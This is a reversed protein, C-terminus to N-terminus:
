SFSSRPPTSGNIKTLNAWRGDLQYEEPHYTTWTGAYAFEIINSPSFEVETNSNDQDLVFDIYGSTLNSLIKIGGDSNSKNKGFGFLTIGGLVVDISTNRRESIVKSRDSNITALNQEKTDSYRVLSVTFFFTLNLNQLTLGTSYGVQLNLELLVM